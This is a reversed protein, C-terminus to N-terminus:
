EQSESILAAVAAMGARENRGGARLDDHNYLALHVGEQQYMFSLTEVPEHRKSSTNETVEFRIDQNLLFIAVDKGNDTFLHLYIDSHDGATGNMVAGVLYPNFRELLQMVDLAIERLELLRQPQTDGFFIANYERVEQEIQQNDPIVDGRVKQNGLLQKAARRKASGYDAGDEAIMRAALAAIEARLSEAERPTSIMM